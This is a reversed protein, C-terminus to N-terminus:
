PAEGEKKYDSKSKRKKRGPGCESGLMGYLWQCQIENVSLGAHNAGQTVLRYLQTLVVTWRGMRALEKRVMHM